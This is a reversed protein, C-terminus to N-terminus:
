QAAQVGIRGLMAFFDALSGPGVALRASWNLCRERVTKWCQPTLRAIADRRATRLVELKTQAEKLATQADDFEKQAAELKATDGSKEAAARDTRARSFRQEAARLASEHNKVALTAEGRAKNAAELEQGHLPRTWKFLLKGRGMEEFGTLAGTPAGGVDGRAQGGGGEAIGVGENPGFGWTGSLDLDTAQAVSRAGIPTTFVIQPNGLRLWWLEWVQALQASIVLKPRWSDAEGAGIKTPDWELGVAGTAEWQNGNPGTWWVALTPALGVSWNGQTAGRERVMSDQVALMAGVQVSDLSMGLFDWGLPKPPAFVNVSFGLALAGSRGGSGASLEAATVGAFAQITLVPNDPNFWTLVRCLGGDRAQPPESPSEDDAPPLCTRRSYFTVGVGADFEVDGLFGRLDRPLDAPTVTTSRILNFVLLRVDVKTGGISLGFGPGKMALYARPLGPHSWSVVFMASRSRDVEVEDDDNPVGLCHTLGDRQDKNMPVYVLFVKQDLDAYPATIDFAQDPCADAGAGPAAAGEIRPGGGGPPEGNPENGPVGPLRPLPIRFGGSQLLDMLKPVVEEYSGSKILELLSPADNAADYWGLRVALGTPVATVSLASDAVGDVSAVVRTEGAGVGTVVGLTDVRVVTTDLSLWRVKKGPIEVNDADYATVEYRATDGAFRLTDRRPTLAISAVTREVEAEPESYIFTWVESRGQNAAVPRGEGDLAQVRWAYTHGPVLPQGGVPYQHSTETLNPEVYHLINSTLALEPRQRAATNVEAIQLVYGIRGDAAPPLQVPLWEFIPDQTTVTDGDPPFLLSPPDPYQTSFRVCQREVLVFGGPDVLTVCGEYDGEPLRGTRAVQDQVSQDWDARGGFTSTADFTVSEGAAVTHPDTVGRLLLRSNRTLSYHFTVDGTTATGNTVILQGVSPDLEWDSLFPSPLPALVLQATWESQAAGTGALSILLAPVLLRRV